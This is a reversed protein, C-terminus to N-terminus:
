QTFWKPPNTQIISNYKIVFSYNDAVCNTNTVKRVYNLDYIEALDFNYTKSWWPLLYETWAKVAWWITNRTFLSWNLELKNDLDLDEYSNWSGNASRFVWDAYIIANINNVDKNVYINWINNYDSDVLYNDKLVIIGLKKNSLNLDWNIIVNADKVILTEYNQDWSIMIDSDVYKIWNLVQGSSMWNILSYANRKIVARLEAKSLDSFNSEQWTIDSKWDWQLSWIVKLWLTALDCWDQIWSKDLDIYYKITKWWLKYVIDLNDTLIKPWKLVNDNADINWKFGLVKYLDSWFNKVVDTFSSWFHGAVSHNITLSSINLSWNSVFINNDDEKILNIRYEQDKWIQPRESWSLTLVWSIPKKFENLWSLESYITQTTFLDNYNDDWKNMQLKFRQSFEWPALSKLKFSLEWDQNSKVWIFDHEDLADFWSNNIMNTTITKWDWAKQDIYDIEKNHIPNNFRDKLSLNYSYVDNNNAYKEWLASDISLITTDALDDPYVTFSTNYIGTNWFADSYNIVLDKEWAKTFLNNWKDDVSWFYSNIMWEQSINNVSVDYNIKNVLRCDTTTDDKLHFVFDEDKAKTDNFVNDIEFEPATNDFHNFNYYYKRINYANDIITLFWIQWNDAESSFSISSQISDWNADENYSDNCWSLNDSSCNVSLTIPTKTCPIVFDSIDPSKIYIKERSELDIYSFVWSNVNEDNKENFYVRFKNTHYWEKDFIMRFSSSNLWTLPWTKYENTDQFYFKAWIWADWIYSVNVWSPTVMNEYIDRMNFVFTMTEWSYKGNEEVQIDWSVPNWPYVEFEWLNIQKEFTQNWSFDEVSVYFYYKWAKTLTISDKISFYVRNNEWAKRELSINEKNIDADNNFIVLNSPNITFDDYISSSNLTNGYIDRVIISYKYTILKCDTDWTPFVDNFDFNIDVKNWALMTIQSLSTDWLRVKEFDEFSSTQVTWSLLKTTELLNKNFHSLETETCEVNSCVNKLNFNVWSDKDFFHSIYNPFYFRFPMSISFFTNWSHNDFFYSNGNEYEVIDWDKKVSISTDTDLLDNITLNKDRCKYDLDEEDLECLDEIIFSRDWYYTKISQLWFDVYNSFDTEVININELFSPFNITWDYVVTGIENCNEDKCANQLTYEPNLCAWFVGKNLSLLLLSFFIFFVKKFM